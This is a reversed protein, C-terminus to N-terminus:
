HRDRRNRQQTESVHRAGQSKAGRALKDRAPGSCPRVMGNASM